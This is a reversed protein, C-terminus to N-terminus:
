KARSPWPWSVRMKIMHKRAMMGSTLRRGGRRSRDRGRQDGARGEKSRSKCAPNNPYVVSFTVMHVDCVIPPSNFAVKPFMTSSIPVDMRSPGFAYQSQHKRYSRTEIMARILHSSWTTCLLKIPLIRDFRSSTHPILKKRPPM